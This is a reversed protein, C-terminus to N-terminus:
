PGVYQDNVWKGQQKTRDPLVMVGAGDRVGNKFDGEYYSHDAWTYRGKGNKESHKFEGNYESGDSYDMYGKGEREDDKFDGSYNTGDPWWYFGRGNMKGNKFTGCFYEGNPWEYICEEVIQSPPYPWVYIVSGGWPAHSRTTSLSQGNKATNISTSIDLSLNWPLTVWPSKPDDLLKKVVTKLDPNDAGSWFKRGLLYNDALDQWSTFTSQLLKAASMIENWAEQQSLYGATYSWETLCVLRSYDWGILTKTGLIESNEKVFMLDNLLQPNDQCDDLMKQYETSTTGSLVELIENYYSRHGDKKIWAISKLADERTKIGWGQSLMSKVAAAYEPTFQGGGLLTLSMGNAEKVIASTALAWLQQDNQATINNSTSGTQDASGKALSLRVTSSMYHALFNLPVMTYGNMNQAPANLLHCQEDELTGYESGNTLVITRGLSKIVTNPDNYQVEFDLAQAFSNLPVLVLGNEFIPKQGSFQVPQDNVTVSIDSGNRVVNISNLTTKDAANVLFLSTSYLVFLLCTLRKLNLKYIKM